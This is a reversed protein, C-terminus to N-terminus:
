KLEFSATLVTGDTLTVALRYCFGPSKPTQWNQIFQDGAYRLVTGGTTTIEVPDAVPAMSSCSLRTISFGAVINLNSIFGGEPNRVQWKVPVTSGGKVTNRVAPNPNVPPLLGGAVDFTVTVTFTRSAM